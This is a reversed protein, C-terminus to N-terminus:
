YVISIAYYFAITCFILIALNFFLSKIIRIEEIDQFSNISKYSYQSILILFIFLAYYFSIIQGISRSSEFTAGLIYVLGIILFTMGLLKHNISEVKKMESELDSRIEKTNLFKFTFYSIATIYILAIIFGRIKNTELVVIMLSSLILIFSGIIKVKKNVFNNYIKYSNVDVFAINYGCGILGKLGDKTTITRVLSIKEVVNGEKTVRFYKISNEKAVENTMNYMNSILKSDIQYQTFSSVTKYNEVINTWTENVNVPNNHVRCIYEEDQGTLKQYVFFYQQNPGVLFLKNKDIWECWEIFTLKNDNLYKIRKELETKIIEQIMVKNKINYDTEKKTKSLIQGMSSTKLKLQNKFYYLLTIAYLIILFLYFLKSKVM